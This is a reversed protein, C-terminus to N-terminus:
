IVLASSIYWTCERVIYSWAGVGIKNKSLFEIAPFCVSMLRIRPETCIDRLEFIPQFIDNKMREPLSNGSMAHDNPVYSFSLCLLVANLSM